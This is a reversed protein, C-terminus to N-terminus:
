KESIVVNPIEGIFSQLDRSLDVVDSAVTPHICDNNYFYTHFEDLDFSTNSILVETDKRRLDILFDDGQPTYYAIDFKFGHKDAFQRAQEILLTLQSRDITVVFGMLPPRSKFCENSKKYWAISSAGVICVLLSISFCGTIFLRTRNTLMSM